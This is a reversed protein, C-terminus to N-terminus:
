GLIYHRKYRAGLSTLIEYGITGASKALDDITQNPGLIEITDGQAPQQGEIQSIDITVLDMSVRGIVPCPQNNYYFVGRNSNARLFGDAYGIAITATRTKTKFRHSAAYGITEDAACERIQLIRSNLTVLPKMPNTTEPRPNGGYLAYGPRAMDYHYADDRFLGSSNSLSLQVNPYQKSFVAKFKQTREHFDSGQTITLVKAAQGDNTNENWDDAAVFHSMVLQVDINNLANPTKLLAITENHNLGLRNMGTDLHLHASLIKNKDRGQKSWRKIDDLSNLVPTINHHTYTDEAGTFLGGLVAIPTQTDLERLHLAEDLNAVFFQPCNLNKLTKAVESMGLGYANAKIVGAVACNEGVKQQFLRYNDALASLDITLQSSETFFEQM